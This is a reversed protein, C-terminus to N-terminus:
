HASMVRREESIIKKKDQVQARNPNQIHMSKKYKQNKILLLSM